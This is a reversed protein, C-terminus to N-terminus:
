LQIGVPVPSTGAFFFFWVVFAVLTFSASVVLVGELVFHGPDDFGRARRNARYVNSLKALISALVAITAIVGIFMTGLAAGLSSTAGQIQSGIWLWLLPTGIWLVLSGIFMILVVLVAGAGTRLLQRMPPDPHGTTITPGPRTRVRGWALPCGSSLKVQWWGMLMGILGLRPRVQWVGCGPEGLDQRSVRAFRYQAPDLLMRELYLRNAAQIDAREAITVRATRLREALQDRVRELEGLSLLRPQERSDSPADLGGMSYATVFADALERELRAIQARLTRRAAREADETVTIPPAPPAVQPTARVQELIEM